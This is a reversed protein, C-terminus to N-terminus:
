VGDRVSISPIGELGVWGLLQAVRPANVLALPGRGNLSDAVELIARLGLVDVFTVGAMDVVVTPDASLAEELAGRLRDATAMDLEGHVHLVPPSGDELQIMLAEM